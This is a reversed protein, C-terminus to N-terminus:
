ERCILERVPNLRFNRTDTTIIIPERHSPMNRPVGIIFNRCLSANINHRPPPPSGMAPGAPQYQQAVPLLLRTARLYAPRVITLDRDSHEM